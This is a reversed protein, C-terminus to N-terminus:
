STCTCTCSDELILWLYFLRIRFLSWTKNFLISRLLVYKLGNDDPDLSVLIM